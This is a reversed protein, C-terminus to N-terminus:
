PVNRVLMAILALVFGSIIAGVVFFIASKITRVDSKIAAVEVKLVALQVQTGGSEEEESM